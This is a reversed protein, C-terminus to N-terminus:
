QKAIFDTAGCEYAHEVSESDDMGTIMVIPIDYGAESKRIYDCLEFGSIGPLDVDLMVLSYETQHFMELAQPGSEAEHIDINGVQSLAERLLLRTLEDDDVLLIRKNPM